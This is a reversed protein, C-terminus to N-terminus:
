GNRSPPIVRTDIGHIVSDIGDLDTNIQDGWVDVSAGVTPKTWGYNATTLEGARPNKAM